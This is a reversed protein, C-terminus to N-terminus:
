QKVETLVVSDPLLLKSTESSSNYTILSSKDEDADVHHNGFHDQVQFLYGRNIRGTFKTTKLSNDNQFNNNM